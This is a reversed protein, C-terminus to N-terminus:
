SNPKRAEKFKQRKEAVRQNIQANMEALKEPDDKYMAAFAAEIAEAGYEELARRAKERLIFPRLEAVQALKDLTERTAAQKGHVIKNLLPYDLNALLAVQRQNLGLVELEARLQNGFQNMHPM